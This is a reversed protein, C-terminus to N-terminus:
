WEFHLGKTSLTHCGERIQKGGWGLNKWDKNCAQSVQSNLDNRLNRHKQDDVAPTAMVPRSCVINVMLCTNPVFLERFVLATSCKVFIKKPTDTGTGPFSYLDSKYPHTMTICQSACQSWWQQKVSGRTTVTVLRDDM